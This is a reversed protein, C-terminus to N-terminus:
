HSSKVFTSLVDIDRWIMPQMGVAITTTLLSFLKVGRILNGMSGSSYVLKGLSEREGKNVPYKNSNLCSTKLMANMYYIPLAPRFNLARYWINM